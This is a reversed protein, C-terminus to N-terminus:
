PPRVRAVGENELAQTSEVNMRIHQFGLQEGALHGKDMPPQPGCDKGYGLRM